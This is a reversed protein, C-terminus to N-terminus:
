GRLALIACAVLAWFAVGAAIVAAWVAVRFWDIGSM